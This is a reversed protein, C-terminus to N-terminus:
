PSSSPPPAVATSGLKEGTALLLEATKARYAEALADNRAVGDGSAYMVALVQCANPHGLDDCARRALPLAKAADRPLGFSPKLYASALRVCSRADNNPAGCLGELRAVGGRVDQPGGRGALEMQALKSCAQNHVGSACARACLARAADERSPKEGTVGMDRAAEGRPVHLWTESMLLMALNYCSNPDARKACNEEYVRAASRADKGVLQYWEGLSFCAGALGADCGDKFEKFKREFYDKSLAENPNRPANLGGM